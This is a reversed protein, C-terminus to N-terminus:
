YHVTLPRGDLQQTAIFQEIADKVFGLPQWGYTRFFLDQLAPLVETAKEGALKQLASLVLRVSGEHVLTMKKASTFPHLFERWQIVEIEGQWDEHDIAIELSELTPLSYLSSNLVQAVASLQWDLPKCTIKFQLAKRGNNGTEERGWLTVAVSLNFFQVRARQITMFTETRHIFHGLLPTDFVLQNFLHFESQNLIPTEIQSLIDELYEIDGRFELFTLSPFVVRTLPPPHRSERHARSRPCKFGLELSKLRPLMSLCPVITEPAIYGSHPINWLFLQVLNTTSSLLKGVSPYPIGYLRLLRLRPASGGLFSDPFVPVDQGAGADCLELSTLAPFPKDIAALEKLFNEQFEWKRYYIKCVRNHRRLVGIVNTVDEKSAMAFADIVIPLAPWIDLAKPNVLQQKTCWLKLDLRRPSAFVICRWRRCVHVLTQWGNYDYRFDFEDPADKGLYVEFIELLVNDPLADITAQPYLRDAGGLETSTM